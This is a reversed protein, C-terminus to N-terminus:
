PANGGFGVIAAVAVSSQGAPPLTVSVAGFASPQVQDFPAVVCDIMMLSGPEYVTRTRLPAQSDGRDSGTTMVVPREVIVVFSESASQPGPLLAVSVAFSPVEHSQDFPAVLRDITTVSAPVNLTVVVFLPQVIGSDEGTVTVARETDISALPGVVKQSPPLTVSVALAPV